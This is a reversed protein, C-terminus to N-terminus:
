LLFGCDAFRGQMGMEFFADEYVGKKMEEEERRERRRKNCIRKKLRGFHSLANWDVNTLSTDLDSISAPLEVTELVADPYTKWRWM